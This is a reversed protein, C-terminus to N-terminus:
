EVAKCRGEFQSNINEVLYDFFKSTVGAYLPNAFAMEIRYDVYCSNLPDEKCPLIVWESTMSDFIRSSDSLSTVRWSLKHTNKFNVPVTPHSYSVKSIYDFSVANFGIRTTADFNGHINTKYKGLRESKTHEDVKSEPM